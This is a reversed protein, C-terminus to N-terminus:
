SLEEKAKHRDHENLERKVYIVQRKGSIKWLGDDADKNRMPEYGCAEMRQPIKRSNKRDNRWERFEISDTNNKIQVLTLADPNGLADLADAFEADEPSRSADM